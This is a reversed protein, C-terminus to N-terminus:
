HLGSFNRHSPLDKCVSEDQVCFRQYDLSLCPMSASPPSKCKVYYVLPQKKVKFHTGKQSGSLEKANVIQVIKPESSCCQQASDQNACSHWSRAGPFPFCVCKCNFIWKVNPSFNSTEILKRMWWQEVPVRAWIHTEQSTFPKDQTKHQIWQPSPLHHPRFQWSFYGLAYIRQEWEVTVKDTNLEKVKKKKNFHACWSIM